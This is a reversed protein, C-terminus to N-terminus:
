PTSTGKDLNKNYLIKWLEYSGNWGLLVKHIFPFAYFHYTASAGRMLLNKQRKHGGFHVYERYTTSKRHVKFHQPRDIGLYEPTEENLIRAFLQENWASDSTCLTYNLGIQKPTAWHSVIHCADPQSPPAMWRWTQSLAWTSTACLWSNAVTCNRRCCTPFKHVCGAGGFLCKRCSRVSTCYSQILM